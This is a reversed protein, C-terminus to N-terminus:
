RAEGLDAVHFCRCLWGGECEPNPAAPLDKPDNATEGDADGCPGCTNRDLIASYMVTEIRDLNETIEADRGTRMATNALSAATQEVFKVSESELAERLKEVTYDLLTKLLVYVNVARSQIENILKSIAIRALEDIYDEDDDEDKTDFKAWWDKGSQAMLERVVQERGKRYADLFVARLKKEIKPDPVLTLTHVTEITLKDIKEAAQAILSARFQMLVALARKSAAEGDDVISKLSIVKEVGRPERALALGDIEFTKKELPDGSPLQKPEDEEEEDDPKPPLKPQEPDDEGPDQPNTGAPVKEVAQIARNEPSIPGLAAPQLYYDGKPDPPMGTAERFENLTWGGAKLNERARSHIENADEQLFAVHKIDYAVRLKEAKIADIGEFEPLVFWTLWERMAALEPSIKNDWFDRLSAKATANATVHLLGVYAGVLIPPVGFVSCIRSEFRGSLEDSALEDLNSGIKQFDANQDLVAVGKQNSGNRGYKKMWSRQLAERKPEAVTTNLIKLIGSPTGDSEFFADVYDSMGLDSNISKLAVSLPSLGFFRNILDVRRRILMDEPKIRTIKGDTQSYEYYAVDTRDANLKPMVRNPNLAYAEVVLGAGSRVLQSYFIGTSQESQVMLRRFDRGTEYPNPRKFLAPLPHGEVKEWEGKGNKREVIIEADNMVDAIKNICAYVLEHAAYAGLTDDAKFVSRKRRSMWFREFEPTFTVGKRGWITESIKSLFEM